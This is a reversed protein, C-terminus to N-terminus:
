LFIDIGLCALAQLYFNHKQRFVHKLTHLGKSRSYYVTAATTGLEACIEQTNKGEVVSLQIIKAQQKPLKNIEASLLKLLETYIMGNLMDPDESQIEALWEESHPLKIRSQKLYDLCGNKTSIFLFARLSELAHFNDRRQWLKIFSDSVVEAAIEPKRVLKLAFFQLEHTLLEMFFGLAHEFGARLDQLQKDVKEM